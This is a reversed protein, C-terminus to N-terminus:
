PLRGVPYAPVRAELKFGEIAEALGEVVGGAAYAALLAGARRAQTGLRSDLWAIVERQRPTTLLRRVDGGRELDNGYRQIAGLWRLTARALTDDEVGRLLEADDLRKSARRLGGLLEAKDVETLLAPGTNRVTGPVLEAGVVGARSFHVKLAISRSSWPHGTDFYAHEAFVFTGLGHAILSPGWMEVGMVVHAHHCLVAHAGAEAYRRARDRHSLLPHAAFEYGWHAQVIVLDAIARASRIEEVVLEDAAIALEAGGPEREPFYEDCCGLMAVRLGNASLMAPARAAAATAGAGCHGIGHADLIRLSELLGEAGFDMAHNNACTMADFRGETLIAVADPSAKVFSGLTGAPRNCATMVSELNGVRLDCSDLAPRMERWFAATGQQRVTAEVDLGLAVDGVALVSLETKGDIGRIKELPRRYRMSRLWAREVAGRFRWPLYNVFM